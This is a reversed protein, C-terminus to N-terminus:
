HEYITVGNVITQIPIIARKETKEFLVLDAVTGPRISGEGRNLGFLRKPNRSVLSLAESESVGTTAIFHSLCHDLLHGSGALFPTGTQSLHGDEHVTVDLDKWKYSGPALGGMPAVDSTLLTKEPGKVKYFSKIVDEPLHYGDTIMSIALKEDALQAWIYNRLRPIEAHSGNGLHTALTAGQKAAEHVEEPSAATHGLSVVIGQKRAYSILDGAGRREPALTLLRIMGRAEKHMSAFEQVDPDRVFRKSHAGRPGDVPSLYPGELHIGPIAAAILPDSEVAELITQIAAKMDEHSSSIITPFHQTVGHAALTHVFNKIQETSLDGSSYDLGEYGNVQIDILGYSIHALNENSDIPSLKVIQGDSIDLEINQGAFPDYGQLNM